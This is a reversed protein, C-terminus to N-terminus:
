FTLDFLEFSWIIETVKNEEMKMYVSGQNFFRKMRFFHYVEGAKCEAIRELHYKCGSRGDDRYGRAVMIQIAQTDGDGIQVGFKKGESIRGYYPTNTDLPIPYPQSCGGILIATLFILLFLFPKQRIM